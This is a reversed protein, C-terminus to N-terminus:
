TEDSEIRNIQTSRFKLNPFLLLWGAGDTAQTANQPLLPAGAGWKAAAQPSTGGATCVYGIEFVIRDGDLGTVANMTAVAGSAIIHNRCSANNILELTDGYNGSGLLTGRVTTGDNSFVRACMVVRNVDDNTAFERAMLQGSIFGSIVQRGNLGPTVYQRDLFPTFATTAGNITTGITIADKIKNPTLISRTADGTSKWMGSFAPIVKNPIASSSFYLYTSM